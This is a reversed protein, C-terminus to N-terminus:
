GKTGKNSIIAKGDEGIGDQNHSFSYVRGPPKRRCKENVGRTNKEIQEHKLLNKTSDTKYMKEQMFLLFTM